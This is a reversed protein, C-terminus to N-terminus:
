CDAEDPGHLARHRRRGTHVWGCIRLGSRAPHAPIGARYAERLVFATEETNSPFVVATPTGKAFWKDSAYVAPADELVRDAGLKKRFKRILSANM